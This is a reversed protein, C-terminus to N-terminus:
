ATDEEDDDQTADLVDIARAVQVEARIHARREASDPEKGPAYLAPWIRALRVLLNILVAIALMSPFGWWRHADIARLTDVTTIIGVGLAIAGVAPAEGWWAGRWAFASAAAGGIIILICAAATDVFLAGPSLLIMAGMIALVGYEIVMGATVLPPEELSRWIRGLWHDQHRQSAAATSM